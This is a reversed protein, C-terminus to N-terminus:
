IAGDIHASNHPSVRLWNRPAEIWGRVMCDEANAGGSGDYWNWRDTVPGLPRHVLGLTHGAEHCSVKRLNRRIDNAQAIGDSFPMSSDTAADIISARSIVADSARCVLPRSPTAWDACIAMGFVGSGLNQRIFRVDTTSLCNLQRPTSVSTTAAIRNMAFTAAEQLDAFGHINAGYCWRHIGDDPQCPHNGQACGGYTHAAAPVPSILVLAAGALGLLTLLATITRSAM